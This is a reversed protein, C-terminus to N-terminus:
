FKKVYVRSVNNVRSHFKQFNKDRSINPYFRNRPHGIKRPLVTTKKNLENSLTDASLKSQSTTMVGQEKNVNKAELEEKPVEGKKKIKESANSDHEDVFNDDKSLVIEGIRGEAVKEKTEIVSAAGIVTGATEKSSPHFFERLNRQPTKKAPSKTQQIGNGEIEMCHISKINTSEYASVINGETNKAPRVRKRKTESNPVDKIVSKALEDAKQNLGRSIWKFHIYKFSNALLKVEDYYPKLNDVKIKFDGNAQKIVLDSDAVNNTAYGIYLANSYVETGASNEILYGVGAEGPNEKNADDSYLSFVDSSDVELKAKPFIKDNEKFKAYVSSFSNQASSGSNSGGGLSCLALLTAGNSINHQFVTESDKLIKAGYVISFSSKEIDGKIWIKTRINGVNELLSAKIVIIRQMHTVVFLEVKDSCFSPNLILSSPMYPVYVQKSTLSANTKDEYFNFKMSRPEGAHKIRLGSGYRKSSIDVYNVKVSSKIPNSVYVVKSAPPSESNKLNVFGKALNKYLM